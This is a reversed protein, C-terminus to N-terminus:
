RIPLGLVSGVWDNRMSNLFSSGFYDAAPSFTIYLTERGRVRPFIRSQSSRRTGTMGAAFGTLGLM